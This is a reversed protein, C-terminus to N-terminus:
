NGSLYDSFNANGNRSVGEPKILAHKFMKPYKPGSESTRGQGQSASRDPLHGPVLVVRKTVINVGGKNRLPLRCGQSATTGLAIKLVRSEHM